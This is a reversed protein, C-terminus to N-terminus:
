QAGGDYYEREWYEHMSRVTQRMVGHMNAADAARLHELMTHLKPEEHLAVHYCTLSKATDLLLRDVEIQTLYPNAISMCRLEHLLDELDNM